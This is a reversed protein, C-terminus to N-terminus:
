RNMVERSSKCVMTGQQGFKRGDRQWYRYRLSGDEAWSEQLGEENGGRYRAATFVQGNRHWEYSIGEHAGDVASYKFRPAGDQWWGEQSGHELGAHYFRREALRGNPWWRERRGEKVGGRYGIRSRTMGDVREVLVGNFPVGEVHIIGAIITVAPDAADVDRATAYGPAPAAHMALLLAASGYTAPKM